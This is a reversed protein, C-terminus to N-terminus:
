KNEVRNIQKVNKKVVKKDKPNFLYEKSIDNKGANIVLVKFKDVLFLEFLAASVKLCHLTDNKTFM